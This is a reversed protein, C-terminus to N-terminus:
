DKRYAYVLLDQFVRQELPREQRGGIQYGFGAEELMALIASLRDEEPDIHHHVEMVIRGVSRLKGTGHLDRIVGEEAGEVDLKLLDVDDEIRDSLRVAPVTVTAMEARREKLSAVLSGPRGPELHFPLNGAEGALAEQRVEIGDLGNLEALRSVCSYADPEPEFATIRADPHLTKFFAVSMGINAGGDVIVPAPRELEVHYSLGLFIEEFLYLLAGYRLFPLKLGVIDAIRARPDYRRRAVVEWHTRLIRKRLEPTLPLERIRKRDRLIRRLKDVRATVAPFGM